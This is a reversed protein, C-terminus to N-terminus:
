SAFPSALQAALCDYADAGRRLASAMRRLREPQQALPITILELEAQRRLDELAARIEQDTM